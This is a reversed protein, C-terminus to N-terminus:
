TSFLFTYGNLSANKVIGWKLNLTEYPSKHHYGLHNNTFVQAARNFQAKFILNSVNRHNKWNTCASSCKECLSRVARLSRVGRKEASKGDYPTKRTSSLTTRFDSNYDRWPRSHEVRTLRSEFRQLSYCTYGLTSLTLIFNLSTFALVPINWSKNSKNEM